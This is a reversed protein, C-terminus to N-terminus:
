DVQCPSCTLSILTLDMLMNVKAAALATYQTGKLFRLRCSYNSLIDHSM